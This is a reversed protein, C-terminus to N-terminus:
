PCKRLRSLPALYPGPRQQDTPAGENLGLLCITHEDRKELPKLIPYLFSMKM